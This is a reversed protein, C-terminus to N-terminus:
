VRQDLGFPDAADIVSQATDILAQIQAWAESERACAADLKVQVAEAEAPLPDFMGHDAPILRDREERLIETSALLTAHEIAYEVMGLMSMVGRNYESCNRGMGIIALAQQKTLNM